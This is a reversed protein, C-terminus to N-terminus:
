QEPNVGCQSSDQMVNTPREADVQWVVADRRDVTRAIETFRRVIGEAMKAHDTAATQDHSKESDTM